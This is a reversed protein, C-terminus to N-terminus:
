FKIDYVKSWSSRSYNYRWTFERWYEVEEPIKYFTKTENDFLFPEFDKESIVVQLKDDAYMKMIDSTPLNLDVPEIM